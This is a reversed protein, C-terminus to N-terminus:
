DAADKAFALKRMAQAAAALIRGEEVSLTSAM